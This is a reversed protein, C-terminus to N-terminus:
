LERISEVPPKKAAFYVPIATAILSVTFSIIFVAAIQLIGYNLLELALSSQLARENLVGCMIFSAVSSLIFCILAIFGGEAFFIKFVDLGRAGVARLIGIERKRYSMSVTIFNFLMLAALVGITGGFALFIVELEGVLQVVFRSDDYVKNEMIYSAGYFKEEGLMFKAQELNKDFVTMVSEYRGDAQPVYETSVEM